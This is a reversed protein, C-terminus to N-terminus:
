QVRFDYGKQQLYPDNINVGLAYQHLYLHKETNIVALSFGANTCKKGRLGNSSLDSIGIGYIGKKNCILAGKFSYNQSTEEYNFNVGASQNFARELFSGTISLLSFSDKAPVAQRLITDLYSIAVDGGIGVSNSYDIVLSANIQDNLIKPFTSMLYITDGVAYVEQQPLWQATVAFNYAVNVYPTTNNKNCSSSLLFQIATILLGTKLIHSFKFYM